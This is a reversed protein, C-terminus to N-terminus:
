KLDNISIKKIIMQDYFSTNELRYFITDGILILNEDIPFSDSIIKYEIPQNNKSIKSIGIKQKGSHEFSGWRDGSTHYLFLSKDNIIFM